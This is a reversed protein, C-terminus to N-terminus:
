IIWTLHKMSELLNLKVVWESRQLRQLAPRWFVSMLIVQYTKCVHYQYSITKTLRKLKM